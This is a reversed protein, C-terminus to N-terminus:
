IHILSLDPTAIAHLQETLPGKRDILECEVRGRIIRALIDAISTDADSAFTRVPVRPAGSGKRSLKAFQDVFAEVVNREFYRVGDFRFDTKLVKRHVLEDVNTAECGLLKAVQRASLAGDIYTKVQEIQNATVRRTRTRSCKAPDLSLKALIERLHDANMKLQRAASKMSWAGDEGDFKGLRGSPTSAGTRVRALGFADNILKHLRTSGIERLYVSAYASQKEFHRQEFGSSLWDAQELFAALADFGEYLATFGSQALHRGDIKSSCGKEDGRFLKGVCKAAYIVTSFEENELHTPRAFEIAGLAGLVFRDLHSAVSPTAHDRSITIGSRTVGVECRRWDIPDENLGEILLVDHIPCNAVPVFDFWMRIHRSKSLCVPCVRRGRKAIFREPVNLDYIRYGSDTRKPTNRHLAQLGGLPLQDAIELFADFDWDRGNLGLSEIFSTTSYAHNAEAARQIWGHVPELDRVDPPWAAMPLATFEIGLPAQSQLEDCTTKM